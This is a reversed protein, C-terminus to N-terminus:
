SRSTAWRAAASPERWWANAKRGCFGCPSRLEPSLLRYCCQPLYMQFGNMGKPNLPKGCIIVNAKHLLLKCRIKSIYRYIKNIMKKKNTELFINQKVSTKAKSQGAQQTQTPREARWGWQAETQSIDRVATVAKSTHLVTCSRWTDRFRLIWWYSVGTLHVKLLLLVNRDLAYTNGCCCLWLLEPMAASM